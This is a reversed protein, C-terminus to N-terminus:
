KTKKNDKLLESAFMAVGVVAPAISGLLPGLASVAALGAAKSGTRRGVSSAALTVTQRLEAKAPEPIDDKDVLIEITKALTDNEHAEAEFLARIAIYQIKTMQYNADNELNVITQRTVGLMNALDDASWGAIKRLVLLNEKLRNIKNSDFTPM